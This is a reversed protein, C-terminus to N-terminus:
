GEKVVALSAFTYDYVHDGHYAWDVQGFPRCGLDQLFSSLAQWREPTYIRERMWSFHATDALGGNWCDMTLFCLGGPALTWAIARLFASEDRVHEITSIATIANVPGGTWEEIGHNVRPDIIECIVDPDQKAIMQAFASGAGGVDLVYYYARRPEHVALTRLALAYEWRRHPHQEGLGVADVTLLEPALAEYDPVPDLTKTFAIM